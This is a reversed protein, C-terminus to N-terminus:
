ISIRKTKHTINTHMFIGLRLRGNKQSSAQTYAGAILAMALLPILRRGLASESENELPWGRSNKKVPANHTFNNPLLKIAICEKASVIAILKM